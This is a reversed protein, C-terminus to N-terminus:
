PPYRKTVRSPAPLIRAIGGFSVLTIGTQSASLWTDLRKRVNLATKAGAKGQAVMAELQTARVKVMSYEFAVFFGNMLVLLLAAALALWEM